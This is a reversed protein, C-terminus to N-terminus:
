RGVGFIAAAGVAILVWIVWVGIAAKMGTSVKVKLGVKATGLGLLAVCWLPFIDLRLMLSMLAPSTTSPDLFYGPNSGLFNGMQLSAPDPNLFLVVVSLLSYLTMPLMAHTVMSMVPKFRIPQGLFFYEIAYFIGALILLSLLVMVPSMILMSLSTIHARQALQEATLQPANPMKAMANRIITEAGIRHLIAWNFLVAAAIQVLWCLYYHPERAIDEFTKVPAYFTALIRTASSMQRPEPAPGVVKSDQGPISGAPNPTSM